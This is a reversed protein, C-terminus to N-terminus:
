IYYVDFYDNKNIFFLQYFYILLLRPQCFISKKYIYLRNEIITIVENFSIKKLLVLYFLICVLKFKRFIIFLNYFLFELLKKILYIITKIYKCFNM